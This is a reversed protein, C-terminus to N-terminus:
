AAADLPVEDLAYYWVTAEPVVASVVTGCQRKLCSKYELVPWRATAYTAVPTSLGVTM